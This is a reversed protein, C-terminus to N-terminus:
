RCIAQMSVHKLHCDMEKKIKAIEYIQQLSVQDYDIYGPFNTFKELGVVILKINNGVAKRLFWTTEPPKVDFKFTRDQFAVVTVRM